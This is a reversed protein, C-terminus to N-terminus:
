PDKQPVPPCALLPLTPYPLPAETGSPFSHSKIFLPQSRDQDSDSDSDWSPLLPSLGQYGRYGTPAVPCTCNQGKVWLGQIHGKLPM